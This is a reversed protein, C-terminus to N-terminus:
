LDDLWQQAQRAIDNLRIEPWSGIYPPLVKNDYIFKNNYGECYNALAIIKFLWPMEGPILNQNLYAWTLRSLMQLETKSSAENKEITEIAEGWRKNALHNDVSEFLNLDKAMDSTQKQRKKAPMLSLRAYELYPSLDCQGDEYTTGEMWINQAREIEGQIFYGIGLLHCLHCATGDDLDSRSIGEIMSIVQPWKKERGAEVALDLLVSYHNPHQTRMWKKMDKAKEFLCSHELAHIFAAIEDPTNSGPQKMMSIADNLEKATWNKIKISDALSMANIPGKPHNCAYFDTRFEPMVRKNSVHIGFDLVPPNENLVVAQVRSGQFNMAAVHRSFEDCTLVLKEPVKVEYLREFGQQTEKFAALIYQLDKSFADTYVVFIIGSDLSTFISHPSDGSSNEIRLPQYKGQLDPRVEMTLVLDDQQEGDIEQIPEMIGHDDFPLFVFDNGNPHIAAVDITQYNKFAFSEVAKGRESYSQVTKTATNQVVVRFHGGTNIVMPYNSSKIQRVVRQKEIDIVEFIEFFDSKNNSKNLWLSKSKPFLWAGEIEDDEEAFSSFDYWSLISLPELGLKLVDGEEGTIWLANGVPYINRLLMQRPTRLIIAKKFKQDDLCFIRLFVWREHSSAIILHREDPLLCGHTTEDLWQLGSSAYYLPLEDSDISVLSWQKKIQSTQEETRDFWYGSTDQGTHKALEGAMERAAFHDRRDHYDEYKQKLRMFKELCHLRQNIDDFLKNDDGQLLSVKIQDMCARAKQPDDMELFGAARNLLDKAERSKVAQLLREAQSVLEHAAPVSHLVKGYHEMEAMIREPEKKEQLAEKSRGLVLVAEVLKETKTAPQAALIQDLWVLHPDHIKDKIRSRQQANLSIYQLFAQKKNGEALHNILSSIEMEERNRRAENLAYELRDGLKAAKAGSAIAKHLLEAERSFDNNRKAEDALRLWLDIKEDRQQKEFGHLLRCAAKNEPSVSLIRDALKLADETRGQQQALIMEQELPELGKARLAQINKALQEIEPKLEAQEFSALKGLLNSARDPDGQQIFHKVSLVYVECARPDSSRKLHELASDVRGSRAAALAALVKVNDNAKVSIPITSSLDVAKEYAAVYDVYLELLLIAPAPDEESVELARRYFKECAEYDYEALAKQGRTLLEDKTLGEEREKLGDHTAHGAPGTSDYNVSKKSPEASEFPHDTLAEDIQRQAWVRADEDLEDIMAHCADQDFHRLRLGVLRPNDPKPQEVILSEKFRRILLSQLQTKIRYREASKKPSINEGTPNIRHIMKILEHVTVPVKEKLADYYGNEQRKKKRKKAM